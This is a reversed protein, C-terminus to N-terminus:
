DLRKLVLNIGGMVCNSEVDKTIVSGAGIISNDGIRVGGVIIAGACIKVNNGIIPKAGDKDLKNGITVQQWIACNEGISEANIITSFGHYIMFNKGINNKVLIYLTTQGKYIRKMIKYYISNCRFYLLSRYEPFREILWFYSLFGVNHEWKRLWLEAEERMQSSNNVKMILPIMPLYKIILILYYFCILIKRM